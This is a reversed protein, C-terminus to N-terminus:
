TTLTCHVPQEILQKCPGCPFFGEVVNRQTGLVALSVSLTFYHQYPPVTHLGWAQATTTVAVLCCTCAVKASLFGIGGAGLREAVNRSLM